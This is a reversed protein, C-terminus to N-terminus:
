RSAKRRGRPKAKAGTGLGIQKAMESRKASYAPAVMPYDKPLGWRERYQEPTLGFATMLHRKMSKLKRGDELCILYDPTISRKIPVAPQRKEEPPASPEGLGALTRHVNQILAPLDAQTASNNAVHAAVIEATLALLDPIAIDDPM